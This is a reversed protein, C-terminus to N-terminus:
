LLPLLRKILHQSRLHQKLRRVNSRQDKAQPILLSQTLSLDDDDGISRWKQVSTQDFGCKPLDRLLQNM